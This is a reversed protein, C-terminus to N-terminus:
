CDLGRSALGGEGERGNDGEFGVFAESGARASRGFKEEVHQSMGTTHPSLTLWGYQMSPLWGYMILPWCHVMELTIREATEGQSALRM